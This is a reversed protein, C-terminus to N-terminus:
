WLFADDKRCVILKSSVSTFATIYRKRLEELKMGVTFQMKIMQPM